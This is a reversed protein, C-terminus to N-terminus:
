ITKHSWTMSLQDANVQSNVTESVIYFGSKALVEVLRANNAFVKIVLSPFMDQCHNLLQEEINKNIMDGSAGLGIIEMDNQLVIFGTIRNSDKFVFTKSGGQFRSKASDYIQHWYSKDIVPHSAINSELWMGMIIPIDEPNAEQINSHISTENEFHKRLRRPDVFRNILYAIIIGFFTELLRVVGYVVPPMDKEGILIILFVVLGIVTSAQVKFINCLYIILIVGTIALLTSIGYGINEILLLSLIGLIAGIATGIIREIGTQISNQLSSKMCIIAAISAQIGDGVGTLQFFLICVGVSLATKVNRMGIKYRPDMHKETTNKDM